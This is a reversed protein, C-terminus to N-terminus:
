TRLSGWWAIQQPFFKKLVLMCCTFDELFLTVGCTALPSPCETYVEIKSQLLGCCSERDEKLNVLKITVGGRFPWKLQDDFEGRMVYVFVALHTGESIYIGYADVSLCMKYGRPHTYFHQSHLAKALTAASLYYKNFYFLWFPCTYHVM